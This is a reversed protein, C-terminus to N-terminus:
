KRGDGVRTREVTWYCRAYIHSHRVQIMQLTMIGSVMNTLIHRQITFSNDAFSALLPLMTPGWQSVSAGHCAKKLLKGFNKSVLQADMVDWPSEPFNNLYLLVVELLSPVNAAEKEQNLAKTLVKPLTSEGVSGYVLSKAHQCLMALLSYTKRRLPSKASTLTKWLINDKISDGYLNAQTESHQQVWLEMGALTTGVIREFREDMEDRDIETPQKRAFLADYMASPREYGLIQSVHAILGNASPQPSSAAARVEATPDAQACWMMGSVEPLQDVVLTSWAKPLRQCAAKMCLLAAARVSASDDYYLKSHYVFVLHSFADVQDKRNHDEEFYAQLEHLARAKTIADRKQTIRKFILSLNSDSGTYVPSAKLSTSPAAFAGFGVFDGSTAGGKDLRTKRKDRGM